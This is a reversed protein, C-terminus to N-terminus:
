RAKYDAQGFLFGPLKTKLTADLAAPLTQTYGGSSDTFSLIQLNFQLQGTLAPQYGGQSLKFNREGGSTQVALAAGNVGEVSNTRRRLQKLLHREYNM